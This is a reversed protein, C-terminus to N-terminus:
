RNHRLADIIVLRSAKWAPYVSALLTTAVALALAEAALRPTIRIQGIFGHAMGPPPPMPIGVASILVALTLGMTVGFVGGIGGLLAGEGIFLALVRRRPVGLAMLTGIEGTREIVSMTMTNSISLVIIAAIIAKVVQVQKSFLAVTKNYFDALEHWTVVQFQQSPLKARLSAAVADTRSTDDILVVWAHAGQQHRLQRATELPLRLTSDDYAKSVTSFLGRVTLEVANIGGSATNVLLVVQDAIRVGLNHALGAGFLVGKTDGARLAEGETIVLSRSLEADFGPDSGEGIFSLSTEGHSVLGAFSLRPAVTRVGPEKVVLEFASGGLPLLYADPDSRGADDYGPRVVQLHGLNAHITSERMDYYIWEVFGSALMLAVIGVTVATIAMASRRPQRLLNRLALSVHIWLQM